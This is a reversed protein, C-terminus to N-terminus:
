LVGAIRYGVPRLGYFGIRNRYILRHCVVPYGAVDLFNHQQLAKHLSFFLGGSWSFGSIAYMVVPPELVISKGSFRLRSICRSPSVM